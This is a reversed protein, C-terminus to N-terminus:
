DDDDDGGDDIGQDIMLFWIICVFGNKESIQKKQNPIQFFDIKKCCLFFHHFEHNGYRM